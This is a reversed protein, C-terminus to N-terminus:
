ARQKGEGDVWFWSCAACTFGLSCTEWWVTSWVHVPCAAQAQLCSPFRLGEGDLVIWSCAPAPDAAALRFSAPLLGDQWENSSVNRHGFLESETAASPYIKRLQVCATLPMGSSDNSAVLENLALALIRLATSKGSCAAGILMVGHRAALADHMAAARSLLYPAPALGLSVCARRLGADLVARQAPSLLQPSPAPPSGSAIGFPFVDALISDFVAVDGATLKAAHVGRLARLAHGLECAESDANSATSPPELLSTSADDVSCAHQLTSAAQVVAM